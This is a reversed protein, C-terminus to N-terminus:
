ASLALACLYAAVAALFVSFEFISRSRNRRLVVNFDMIADVKRGNLDRMYYRSDRMITGEHTKKLNESIYCSFLVFCSCIVDRGNKKSVLRKYVPLSICCYKLPRGQITSADLLRQLM